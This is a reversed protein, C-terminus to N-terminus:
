ALHFRWACAWQEPHEDPPCAICEMRIRSDITKAFAGYEILGASKCPYDELGKRKRADQVRCTVMKLILSDGEKEVTQQNIRAYIRFNLARRLADLGGQEPLELFGKTMGAELPSFRTWCTDNCRKSTYMDQRTEVTQFWIGDNALWNLSMADILSILKEKPMNTLFLPLGDEVEFGLVKSLRQIVIPFISAAVDNETQLAEEIGLQHQVENFWFGYHLMTRRFIDVAFRALEHQSLQEMSDVNSMM